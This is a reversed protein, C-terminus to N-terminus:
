PTTTSSTKVPLCGISGVIGSPCCMTSQTLCCLPPVSTNSGPNRSLGSASISSIICVNPTAISHTCGVGSSLGVIFSTAAISLSILSSLSSLEFSAIFTFPECTPSPSSPSLLPLPPADDAICLKYKCLLLELKEAEENSLEAEEM